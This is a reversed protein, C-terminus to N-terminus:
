DEPVSRIQASLWSPLPFEGASSQAAVLIDALSVDIGGYVGLRLPSFSPIKEDRCGETGPTVLRSDSMVTLSPSGSSQNHQEAPNPKTNKTFIEERGGSPM